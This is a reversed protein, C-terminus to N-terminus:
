GSFESGGKASCEDASLLLWGKGTCGNQGACANGEPGGCQGQGKCENVGLCKVKADGDTAAHAGETEGPKNACAALLLAAAAMGVTTTKTTNM